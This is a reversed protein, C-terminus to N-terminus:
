FHKWWGALWSGKHLYCAVYVTVLMNSLYCGSLSMVEVSSLACQQSSRYWMIWTVCFCIRFLQTTSLKVDHKNTITQPWLLLFSSIEFSKTATPLFISIPCYISSSPFTPEDVCNQIFLSAENQLQEKATNNTTQLLQWISKFISTLEPHNMIGQHLHNKMLHNKGSTHHKNHM